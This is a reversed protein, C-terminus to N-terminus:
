ATKKEDAENLHFQEIMKLFDYIDKEVTDADTSYIDLIHHKIKEITSDEKLMKLIELGIPNVSFSDGTSPTFV